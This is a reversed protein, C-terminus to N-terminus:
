YMCSIFLYKRLFHFIFTRQDDINQQQNNKKEPNSSFQYPVTICPHFMYVDSFFFQLSHPRKQYFFFQFFFWCVWLLPYCYKKEIKMSLNFICIFNFFSFLIKLIPFFKCKKNVSKRQLVIKKKIILAHLVCRINIFGWWLQLTCLVAGAFWKIICFAYVCICATLTCGSWLKTTKRSMSM